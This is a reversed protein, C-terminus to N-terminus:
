PAGVTLIQLVSLSQHPPLTRAVKRRGRPEAGANFCRAIRDFLIASGEQCRFEIPCMIQQHIALQIRGPGLPAKLPRDEGEWM